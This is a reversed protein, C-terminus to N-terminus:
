KELILEPRVIQVPHLDFSKLVENLAANDARLLHNDWTILMAAATFSSEILICADNKEHEPLLGRDAIVNAVIECIGNGVPKLNFPQVGWQIMDSLALMFLGKLEVTAAHDAGYALEQVVTPTVVTTFGM